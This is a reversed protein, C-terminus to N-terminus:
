ALCKRDLHFEIRFLGRCRAGEEKSTRKRGISDRDECVARWRWLAKLDLGRYELDAIQRTCTCLGGCERLKWRV